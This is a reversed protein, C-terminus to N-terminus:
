HTFKIFKIYTCYNTYCNLLTLKRGSSDATEMEPTLISCQRLRYQCLFGESLRVYVQGMAVKEVVSRQIKVRTKATLPRHSVVQAM